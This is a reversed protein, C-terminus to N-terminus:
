AFTFFLGGWRQDGSIVSRAFAADRGIDKEGVIVSSLQIFLRVSNINYQLILNLAYYENEFLACVLIVLSLLFRPSLANNSSDIKRM